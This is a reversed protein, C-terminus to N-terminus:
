SSSALVNEDRKEMVVIGEGMTPSLITMKAM